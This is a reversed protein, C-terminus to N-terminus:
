RGSARVGEFLRRLLYSRALSVATFIAGIWLIEAITTELGFLPFVLLQTLVAMGYGVAVNAIAELLSMLPSQRV